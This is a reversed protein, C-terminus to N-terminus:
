LVDDQGIGKKTSLYHNVAREDNQFTYELTFFGCYKQKLNLYTNGYFNLEISHLNHPLLKKWVATYCLHDTHYHFNLWPIDFKSVDPKIWKRMYDAKKQFYEPMQYHSPLQTRDYDNLEEIYLDVPLHDYRKDTVLCEGYKSQLRALFDFYERSSSVEDEFFTQSKAIIKSLGFRPGSYPNVFRGYYERFLNHETPVHDIRFFQIRKIGDRLFNDNPVGAYNYADLGMSLGFPSGNDTKKTPTSPTSNRSGFLIDILGM